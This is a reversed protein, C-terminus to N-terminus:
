QKNELYIYKTDSGFPIFQHGSGKYFRGFFEIYQLRCNHVYTGLTNIGINFTHGVLYIPIAFVWGIGYPLIGAVVLAIQNVVMGVVGTALGLGFLRSYSLIDSLFGTVNYVNGLGGLIKGFIGKKGLAGGILIMVVGALATFMGVTKLTTALSPFLIGGGFMIGLGIFAVYWSYIGFIAKLPQKARFYNAAQIGMGFCIQFLGLGLSLGLMALPNEMPNFMVAPILEEGFWTGFMAGWIVTSIGGMAIILLLKGEGKRPKKLAYFTFGGIALIIGYAADGLMIGFLIFYFFAVFKNPDRERGDPVSYMNTIDEYPSVVKNNYALTPFVEDDKPEEFYLECIIGAKEVRAKIVEEAEQPAWASLVFCSSTFRCNEDAIVKKYELQYYDYLIKLLPEYEDFKLTEKILEFRRQELTDVQKELESIKELATVEYNFNAKVFDNKALTEIVAEKDEIITIVAVAVTKTGNYFTYHINEFANLQEKVLNVAEVPVTGLIYSTTKTDKFLSFPADVENFVKLQDIINNIRILDSKIDLGESNLKELESIVETLEQEKEIIAEFEDVSVSPKAYDLFGKKPAVYELMEAKVMKAAQKRQERIYEFAFNLKAIKSVIADKKDPASFIDTNELNATETLEVVGLRLLLKMLKERDAAHTIATVKKMKALAM